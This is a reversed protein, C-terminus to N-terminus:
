PRRARCHSHTSDVVSVAMFTSAMKLV